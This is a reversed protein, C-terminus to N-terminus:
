PIAVRRRRSPRAPDEFSAGRTIQFRDWFLHSSNLALNGSFYISTFDVALSTTSAQATVKEINDVGSALQSTNSLSSPTNAPTEGPFDITSQAVKDSASMRRISLATRALTIEKARNLRIRELEKALRKRNEEVTEQM